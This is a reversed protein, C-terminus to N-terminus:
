VVMVAAAVVVVVVVVMAVIAAQKTLIYIHSFQCFFNFFDAEYAIRM